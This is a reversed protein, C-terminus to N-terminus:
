ATPNAWLIFVNLYAAFTVWGLYPLQLLAATKSHRAFEGIMAVILLWLAAIVGLAVAMDKLGFFFLSWGINVALMTFYIGLPQSSARLSGAKRLVILAGAAMLAFLIPWVIAFAIDPPNLRPKTLAAYWPDDSGGTILGGIAGAGLTALVLLIATFWPFPRGPTM